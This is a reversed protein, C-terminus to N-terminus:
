STCGAHTGRGTRRVVTYGYHELLGIMANEGFTGDIEAQTMGCEVLNSSRLRRTQGHHGFLKKLELDKHIVPHLYEASFHLAIDLPAFRFGCRQLSARLMLNLQIDENRLIPVGAFKYCIGHKTPAELFSRSRLSFGGQLVPIANPKDAWAYGLHLRGDVGAAHMPAGVYDYEFWRDNWNGGNLAWGDDQVLLAYETHIHYYLCHVVYSSYQFYDLGDIAIFQVEQPLNAPREQAILLGRSGPLQVVTRSIAYVANRGDGSGDVSVVTIEDFRAM